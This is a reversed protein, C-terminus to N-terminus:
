WCSRHSWSDVSLISSSRSFRAAGRTCQTLLLMMGSSHRIAVWGTTVSSHSTPSNVTRRSCFRPRPTGQYRTILLPASVGLIM